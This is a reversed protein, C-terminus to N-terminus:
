RIAGSISFIPLQWSPAAAQLCARPGHTASTGRRCSGRARLSGAEAEGEVQMGGHTPANLAACALCGLGCAPGAPGGQRCSSPASRSPARQASCDAQCVAGWAWGALWCPALLKSPMTARRCASWQACDGARWVHVSCSVGRLRRACEASGSPSMLSSSLRAPWASSVMRM